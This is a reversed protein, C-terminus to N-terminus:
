LAFDAFSPFVFFVFVFGMKHSPAKPGLLSFLGAWSDTMMTGGGGLFVFFLFCVTVYYPVYQAHSLISLGFFSWVFVFIFLYFLFFCVFLFGWVLQM